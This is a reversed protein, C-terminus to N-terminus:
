NLLGEANARLVSMNQGLTPSLESERIVDTLGLIVNAASRIGYNMRVLLQDIRMAKTHWEAAHTEESPRDAPTQKPENENM